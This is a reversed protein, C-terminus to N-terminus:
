RNNNTETRRLKDFVSRVGDGALTEDGKAAENQLGEQQKQFETTREADAANAARDAKLTGTVVEINAKDRDAQVVARDRNALWVNAALLAVGLVLAWSMLTALHKFRDGVLRLILPTLIPIM